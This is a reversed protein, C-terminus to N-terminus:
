EGCLRSSASSVKLINKAAFFAFLAFLLTIETKQIKRM